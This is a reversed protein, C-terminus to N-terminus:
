ETPPVVMKPKASGFALKLAYPNGDSDPKTPAGAVRRLQLMMPVMVCQGPELEQAKEQLQELLGNQGSAFQIFEPNTGRLEIEKLNDLAVGGGPVSVFGYKDMFFPVTPDEPLDATPLGMNLWFEAKPLDKRDVPVMTGPIAGPVMMTPRVPQGAPVVPAAQRRSNALITAFDMATAM